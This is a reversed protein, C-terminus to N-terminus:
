KTFEFVALSRLVERGEDHQQATAYLRGQDTLFFSDMDYDPHRPLPLTWLLAKSAGRQTSYGRLEYSSEIYVMSGGFGVVTGTTRVSNIVEGTSGELFSLELPDSWSWPYCGDRDECYFAVVTGDGTLDLWTVYGGVDCAWQQAGTSTDAAVVGKGNAFYVARGSARPRVDSSNAKLPSGWMDKGDQGVRMWSSEEGERAVVFLMDGVQELSERDWDLQRDFGVAQGTAWDVPGDKTVIWTAGATKVRGCGGEPCRAQWTVRSLNSFSRAEVRPNDDGFDEVVVIGDEVSMDLMFVWPISSSSVVQGSSNVAALYLNATDGQWYVAAVVVNGAQDFAVVHIYNLDLGAVDELEVQWKLAPSSDTSVAAVLPPPMGEVSFDTYVVFTNDDVLGAISNRNVRDGFLDVLDLGAVRTLNPAETFGPDVSQASTDVAEPGGGCTQDQAPLVSPTQQAPATSPRLGASQAPSSTWGAGAENGRVRSLWGAGVVLALVVAAATVAAALRVRMSKRPSGARPPAERSQGIALGPPITSGPLARTAATRSDAAPVKQTSGWDVRATPAPASPRATTAATGFSERTSAESDKPDRADSSKTAATARGQPAPETALAAAATDASQAAAEELAAFDNPAGLGGPSRIGGPAAFDGSAPPAVATSRGAIEEPLSARVARVLALAAGADEPRDEPRKATLALVLRDIQPVLWAVRSSPVPFDAMVQQFVVQVPTDGVYPQSGTLLEFLVIGAAYVDARQDAKGGTALEPALYAVTGLVVGTSAVTFESVARALGFDAVKVRGSRDILINEPKVDRHVIGSAHAQALADFVQAALDLATGVTLPGSATMFARLNQGEVFEM